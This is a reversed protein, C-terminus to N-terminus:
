YGNLLCGTLFEIDLLFALLSTPETYFWSFFHWCLLIRPWHWPVKKTFGDLFLKLFKRYCGFKHLPLYFLLLFGLFTFGWDYRYIESINEFASWFVSGAGPGVWRWSLEAVQLTPKQGALVFTGPWLVSILQCNLFVQGNTFLCLVWLRLVSLNEFHESSGGYKGWM